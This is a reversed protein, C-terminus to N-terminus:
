VGMRQPNFIGAPDFRAKVRAQIAALAPAVAQFVPVSKDRCRFLTAHGGLTVAQARLSEAHAATGICWRQGGAWEILQPGAFDLAPALPPLALRWLCAAGGDTGCDVGDGVEDDVDVRHAMLPAFFDHQQERLSAWFQSAADCDLVEGGLRQRAEQVAASAGSLRVSLVGDVWCSASIPLAQGLWQNVNQVSAQQDMEFRLSLEQAPRPLVKLSVQLLLGLTGMAGAMSRSVDYGAVNKMVQGGFNLMQGQGDLVQVGLVFDRVSGCSIRRPGALGAAVMGGLTAGTQDTGFHPPEFALMQGQQALLAEIEALSTGCRATLVLEAPQYAVVGQWPRTDLIDGELSQGYWDKSGGGRLRLARRERTASQVQQQWQSLIADM